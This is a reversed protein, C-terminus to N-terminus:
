RSELAEMQTVRQRQEDAVSWLLGEGKRFGKEEDGKSMEDDSGPSREGHTTRGANSLGTDVM